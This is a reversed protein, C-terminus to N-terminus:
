EIPFPLDLDSDTPLVSENMSDMYERYKRDIPDEKITILMKNVYPRIGSRGGQEWYHPGLRADVKLIDYGDLTDVIDETVHMMGNPRLIFIHPDKPKGDRSRFAITAELIYVPPREPDSKPVYPKVNWGDKLLADKIEDPIVFTVTRAGNPNFDSKKGSFNRFIIEGDEIFIDNVRPM